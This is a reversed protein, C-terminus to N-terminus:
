RWILYLAVIVGLRDICRVLLSVRSQAILRGLPNQISFNNAHADIEGCLNKRKRMKLKVDLPRQNTQSARFHFVALHFAAFASLNAYLHGEFFAMTNYVRM